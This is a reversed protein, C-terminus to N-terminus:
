MFLNEFNTKKREVHKMLAKSGKLSLFKDHSKTFGVNEIFKLKNDQKELSPKNPFAMNYKM